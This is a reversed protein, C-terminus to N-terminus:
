KPKIVMVEQSGIFMVGNVTIGKLTLTNYEGIKLSLNKIDSILFKAVFNGRDDSKWHDITVGNLTVSTASVSSFPLDTHVTVVKGNQNLNLVNPSVQITIENQAFANQSFFVAVLVIAILTTVKQLSKKM